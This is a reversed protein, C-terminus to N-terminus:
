RRSRPMHAPFPSGSTLPSSRCTSQPDAAAPWRCSRPARRLRAPPRREPPTPTCSPSCCAAARKLAQALAPLPRDPDIYGLGHVSYILDYPKARRLHTVADALVFRVGRQGGYRTVAREHQTPSSDM